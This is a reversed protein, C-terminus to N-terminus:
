IRDLDSKAVFFEVCFNKQRWAMCRRLFAAAELSAFASNLEAIGRACVGAGIPGVCKRDFRVAPVAFASNLAAIGRACVAAGIPGVCKRDLEAAVLSATSWAARRM